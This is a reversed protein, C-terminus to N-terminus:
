QDTGGREAEVQHPERGAPGHGLDEQRTEVGVGAVEGADGGSM